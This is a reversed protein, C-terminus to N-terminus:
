WERGGKGAAFQAPFAAQHHSHRTHRHWGEEQSQWQALHHKMPGKGTLECFKSM